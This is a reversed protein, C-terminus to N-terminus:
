LLSNTNAIVTDALPKLSQYAQESVHKGRQADLENVFSTMNNLATNYKGEQYHKTFSDLKTQLSRLIGRNNILKSLEVSFGDLATAIKIKKECKQAILDFINKDQTGVTSNLWGGDIAVAYNGLFFSLRAFDETHIEVNPRREYTMEWKFVGDGIATTTFGGTQFQGTMLGSSNKKVESIAGFKAGEASPFFGYKIQVKFSGVRVTDSLGPVVDSLSITSPKEWGDATLIQVVRNQSVFIATPYIDSANLQVNKVNAPPEYMSVNNSAFLWGSFIISFIAIAPFLKMKRFM